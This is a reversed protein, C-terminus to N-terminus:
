GESYNRLLDRVEMLAKGLLNKGVKGTGMCDSCSCRGWINDHWGTTDEVLVENGTSLLLKLLEPNQQFKCTLVAVMESYKVKEWDDRLPVSRGLRKAQSGTKNRFEKCRPPCKQAQWAAESNNYVEGKYQILCNYFNSFCGYVGDRKSFYVM